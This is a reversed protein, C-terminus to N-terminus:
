CPAGVSKFRTINTQAWSYGVVAAHMIKLIEM